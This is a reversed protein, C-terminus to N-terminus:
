AAGQYSSGWHVAPVILSETVTKTGPNVGIAIEKGGSVFDYAFATIVAGQCGPLQGVEMGPGPTVLRPTAGTMKEFALFQSSTEAVKLLSANLASTLQTNPGYGPQDDPFCASPAHGTRSALGIAAMWTVASVATIGVIIIVLWAARIKMLKDM